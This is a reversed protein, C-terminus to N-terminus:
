QVDNLYAHRIMNLLDQDQRVTPKCSRLCKRHFFHVLVSYLRLRVIRQRAKLHIGCAAQHHQPLSPLM